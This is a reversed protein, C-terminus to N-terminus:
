YASKNFFFIYIQIDISFINDQKIHKYFQHKLKKWTEKMFLFNFLFGYIQFRITKYTFTNSWKKVSIYTEFRLIISLM